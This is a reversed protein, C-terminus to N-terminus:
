PKTTRVCRFGIDAQGEDLIRKQTFWGATQYPYSGYSGGKIIRFVYYSPTDSKPQTSTWETVNGSLNYAGVWSQDGKFSNVPALESYGDDWISESAGDGLILCNIDCHNTLSGDFENGWAFIYNEPGRAAYEWEFANPIRAERWACYVSADIYTAYQIPVNSPELPQKDLPENSCVNVEVCKEYNSRSVEFQDIYFSNMTISTYSLRSSALFEPNCILDSDYPPFGEQERLNLCLNIADELEIGSQFEGLPVFVMAIGKTDYQIEVESGEKNQAVTKIATLCCLAIILGFKFKGV